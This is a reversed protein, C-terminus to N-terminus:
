EYQALRLFSIEFSRFEEDVATENWSDIMVHELKWSLVAAADDYLFMPWHLVQGLAKFEASKAVTVPNFRLTFQETIEYPFTGRQPTRLNISQGRPLYAWQPPADAIRPEVGFSFANSAYLKALHAAQSGSSSEFQLGFGRLNSPSVAFAVDQGKPGMLDGVALPNFDVGAITSWVGGSSKQIPRVRTGNKTVLLDARAAVMHTITTDAALHYAARVTGSSAVSRWMRSRPGSILDLLSYGSATSGSSATDVSSATNGVTNPLLYFAM